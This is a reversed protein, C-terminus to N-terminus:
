CAWYGGTADYNGGTLFDSAPSASRVKWLMMSSAVPLWNIM